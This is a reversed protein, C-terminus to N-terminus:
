QGCIPLGADAFDNDPVDQLGAPICGTLNNDRLSISQLYSLNGLEPPIDGSLRNDVLHLGWLPLYRAPSGTTSSTCIVSIASAAWGRLFRAM